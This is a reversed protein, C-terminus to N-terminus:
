GGDDLFKVRSGALISEIVEESYGKGYLIKAAKIRDVGSPFKRDLMVVARHEETQRSEEVLRDILEADLGLQELKARVHLSGKLKRESVVQAVREALKVDSHLGLSTVYDIAAGREEQSFSPSIRALLQQRTCDSRALIDICEKVAARVRDTM